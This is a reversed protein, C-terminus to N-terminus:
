AAVERRIWEVSGNTFRATFEVGVYDGGPEPLWYDYFLVDGHYDQDIDARHAVVKEPVDRKLIVDWRTRTPHDEYYVRNEVLRGEDTITYRAMSCGLDKTQFGRGQHEESGEPLPYECRIDDFMGM